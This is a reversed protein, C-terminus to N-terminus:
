RVETQTSVLWDCPTRASRDSEVEWAVLEDSDHEIRAVGRWDAPIQIMHAQYNIEITHLAPLIGCRPHGLLPGATLNEMFGIAQAM